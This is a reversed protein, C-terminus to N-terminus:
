PAMEVQLVHSTFCRQCMGKACNCSCYTRVKSGCGSCNRQPWRTNSIIWKAGDWRKYSEVTLLVHHTLLDRFAYTRSCNVMEKFVSNKILAEALLKRFSIMSLQEFHFFYECCYKINVETIALFFAFVRNSWRQTAWIQELSVPQHRNNNHDDVAHRYKFHKYFLETYNFRITTPPANNNEIRRITAGDAIEELTGYTSMLSMVYKSEKMCYVGFPVNNLTGSLCDVSGIDNNEFHFNIADGDIYKPWYRRKKIVSAAFVGRNRLEILGLLVCFGSDLVLCFGKYWIAKTLRLLMGITKGKNDFEKNIQAPSDKGEMLEVAWMVRSLGCCVTHYENGFPWPKRPVYMFGPCTRQNTWQSMSEDLCNIYGPQFKEFMNLNWLKQLQRIEWFKDVFDPKENSYTLANLIEEFRTRSIYNSLRFPAGRFPDIDLKSWFERRQVGDITAMLLWVGIWLMFEGYSLTSTLLKNTEPILIRKIYESPFLHEFLHQLIMQKDSNDIEKMCLLKPKSNEASIKKRECLGNFGWPNYQLEDPITLPTPLNEAIPQNDDDVEIGQEIM